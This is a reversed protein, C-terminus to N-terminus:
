FTKRLYEVHFVDKKGAGPGGQQLAAGPDRATDTVQKLMESLTSSCQFQNTGIHQAACLDHLILPLHFFRTKGHSDRNSCLIGCM